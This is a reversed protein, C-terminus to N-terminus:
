ELREHEGGDAAALVDKWLGVARRLPQVWTLLPLAERLPARLLLESVVALLEPPKRSCYEQTVAGLQLSWRKCTCDSSGSYLSGNGECLSFVGDTHGVLTRVEKLTEGDSASPLEWETIKRDSSASFLSEDITILARVAQDHSEVVGVCEGSALSWQRITRDLSGTFLSDRWLCCCRLAERHGRFTQVLEGTSISWARATLDISASILLDGRLEFDMVGADHGAFIQVPTIVVGNAAITGDPDAYQYMEIGGNAKAAFVHTRNAVACYYTGTGFRALEEGTGADWLRCNDGCSFLSNGSVAIGIIDQKHGVFTLVCAGTRADWKKILFDWCGTYVHDGIVAVSKVCSSHGWKLSSLAYEVLWIRSVAARAIPELRALLGKVVSLSLLAQVLRMYLALVRVVLSYIGM